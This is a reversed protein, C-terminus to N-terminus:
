FNKKMKYYNMDEYTIKAPCHQKRGNYYYTYWKDDSGEGDGFLRFVLGPHQRSIETMHADAEYWKCQEGCPWFEALEEIDNSIIRNLESIEKIGHKATPSCWYWEHHAEPDGYKAVAFALDHWTYYGM